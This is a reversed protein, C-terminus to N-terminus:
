ENLSELHQQEYFSKPYTNVLSKFQSEQNFLFGVTIPLVFLPWNAIKEKFKILRVADKETTVIMKQEDRIQSFRDEIENLNEITYIHHDSYFLADYTKTAEHIYYTLPQPNAIGCVLLIEANKSLTKEEKTL